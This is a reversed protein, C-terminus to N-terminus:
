AAAEHDKEGDDAAGHTAALVVDAWCCCGACRVGDGGPRRSGRHGQSGGGGGGGRGRRGGCRGGSRRRGHAGRCRCLGGGRGRGGGGSLRGDGRGLLGRRRSSGLSVPVAAGGDVDGVGTRFVMAIATTVELLAFYGDTEGLSLSLAIFGAFHTLRRLSSAADIAM